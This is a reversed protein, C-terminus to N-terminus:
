DKGTWAGCGLSALALTVLWCRPLGPMVPYPHSTYTIALSVVGSPKEISLGRERTPHCDPSWCAARLWQSQALLHCALGPVEKHAAM